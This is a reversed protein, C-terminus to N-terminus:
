NDTCGIEFIGKDFISEHASNADEMYDFLFKHLCITSEIIIALNELSCTLRKWFIGWRLDIEGFAYEITIHASYQYFNFDFEQSHSPTSDFSPIMFSNLVCASDGLIFFVKQFLFGRM